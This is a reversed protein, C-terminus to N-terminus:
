FYILEDKPRTKPKVQKVYFVPGEEQYADHFEWKVESVVEAWTKGALTRARDYIFIYPLFRIDNACCTMARRGAVFMNEPFKRDQMVQVLMSVRKNIYREPHESLDIYFTGYDQDSIGIPDDDLSYPLDPEPAEIEAGTRDEFVLDCKRNVSRVARQYLVLNPDDKTCRNFIVMDTNTLMDMASMRINNLYLHFASGDLITIIQYFTWYKPLKVNLIDSVTWMGNYEILVRDPRYERTIGEFFKTTLESVNGATVLVTNTKRLLAEDYEEEGEECLILVSRSGDNFYEEQLTYKLFNSKGSDLFGTILYVPIAPDNKM